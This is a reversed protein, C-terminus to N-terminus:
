SIWIAVAISGILVVSVVSGVSDIAQAVGPADTVAFVNEPHPLDGCDVCEPEFLLYSTPVTLVLVYAAAVMRRQAETPITGTPFAVLMHIAVVLFVSSLGLGISFILPVNSAVLSQLFFAFGTAAMLAGVRNGPRRWWAYLGTGIWAAMTAAGVAASVEPEEIHDSTLVIAVSLGTLAAGSLALLALARNLGGM